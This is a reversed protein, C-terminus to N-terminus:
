LGPGQLTIDLGNFYNNPSSEQMRHEVSEGESRLERPGATPKRGLAIEEEEELRM